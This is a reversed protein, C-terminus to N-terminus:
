SAFDNLLDSSENRQKSTVNKLSHGKAITLIFFAHGVILASWFLITKIIIVQRWSNNYDARTFIQTLVPGLFVLIVPILILAVYLLSIHLMAWLRNVIKKRFFYYIFAEAILVLIVVIFQVFVAQYFDPSFSLSKTNIIMIAYYGVVLLILSIVSWFPAM